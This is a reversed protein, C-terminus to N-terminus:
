IRFSRLQQDLIQAQSALEESSAASQEATAANSQVVETISTLGNNVTSIDRAQQSSSDAVKGVLSSFEEVSNSVEELSRSASENLQVGQDVASVCRGIVKVADKAAEASKSALNRVEDAVVAFGKGADGARAAEVAANLALINTQFAIDDILKAITQIEESAKRIDEIAGSLNQMNRNGEQVDQVTKESLTRMRDTMQANANVNENISKVLTDLEKLTSAETSSNDALSQAGNALMGVGGNVQEGAERITGITSKLSSAIKDLSQKIHNFDGQYEVNSEVTLNGNSIESLTFDIDKIYSGLNHITTEMARSLTETEDGRDNATFTADIEGRSFKDLCEATPTISGAIKKAVGMSVIVGTTTLVCAWVLLITILVKGSGYVNSADTCYIVSFEASKELPSSYVIYKSMAGGVQHSQGTKAKALNDAYLPNGDVTGGCENKNTSLIIKGTSSNIMYGYTGTGNMLKLAYDFYGGELTGVITDTGRNFAVLCINRSSIYSFTIGGQKKKNSPLTVKRGMPKNDRKSIDINM